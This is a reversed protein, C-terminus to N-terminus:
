GLATRDPDIVDKVLGALVFVFVFFDRCEINEKWKTYGVFIFKPSPLTILCKPVWVDMGARGKWSGQLGRQPPFRPDAGFLTIKHGKLSRLSKPELRKFAQNTVFSNDARQYPSVEMLNPTDCGEKPSIQEHANM